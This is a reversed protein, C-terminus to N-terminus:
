IDFNKNYLPSGQLAVSSSSNGAGGRPVVVVVVVTAGVVVVVVTAGVVVVVVAPGVVLDKM